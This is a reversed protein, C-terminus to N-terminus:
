STKTHVEVGWTDVCETVGYFSSLVWMDRLFDAERKQELRFLNSPGSFGIALADRVFIGGKRANSTEAILNSRYIDIGAVRNVFANRLAENQIDPTGGFQTSTAIDNMLGYAGNIQAAHFVGNYQGQADAADLLAVASYLNDVTLGVTSTGVSQSFGDFLANLDYDWKEAMGNALTAGLPGSPDYLNSYMTDDYLDSRVAYPALTITKKDSNIVAASIQTGDTVSGVDAYNITNTGGNWVQVTITDANPRYENRVLRRTVGAVGLKIIADAQIAAYLSSTIYSTDGAVAM